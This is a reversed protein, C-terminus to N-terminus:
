GASEDGHEEGRGKAILDGQNQGAYIGSTKCRLITLKITLMLVQTEFISVAHRQKPTLTLIEMPQIGDRRVLTRHVHVMVPHGTLILRQRMENRDQSVVVQVYPKVLSGTSQHTDSAEM